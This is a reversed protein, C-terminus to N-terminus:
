YPSAAIGSNYRQWALVACGIASDRSAQPSAFYLQMGVAKHELRLSLRERIRSNAAVGGVILVEKCGTVETARLLVKEVAKAICDEVGRALEAPEVEGVLRLAASLPGSFSMNMNHVPSALRVAGMAGQALKELQPGAPFSLGLAVGLRDIFQGANIDRTEGLVDVQPFEDWKVALVESTGGSLHLALAKEEPWWGASWFGAALHNQQHSCELLPVDLSKAIVRAYNHGAVFVPMYSDPLDRPRTSVCVAALETLMAQPAQYLQPFAKVHLFFAESQRLGRKGPPVELLRREELVLQGQADVVAVSTTYNSTDIGMFYM